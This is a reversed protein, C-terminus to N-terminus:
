PVVYGKTEKQERREKQKIQAVLQQLKESNNKHPRDYLGNLWNYITTRGVGIEHRIKTITMGHNRLFKIQKSIQM